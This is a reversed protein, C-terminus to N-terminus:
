GGKQGKHADLIQALRDPPQYGPFLEGDDLVLAPTGRVGIAMGINYEDLVPNKCDKNGTINGTKKANTLAAHRDAACWVREAKYFSETDPGSRPFFAYRITIGKANYGAIQSHLLKCYGCDIDTFVTIVHKPKEAPFVIMNSEGLKALAALRAQNRANETLTAGDAIRVLDGEIMYEGDASVYGFNMGTQLEYFGPVASPRISDIKFQLRKELKARLAPIDLTAGMGAPAAVTASAPADATATQTTAATAGPEYPPACAALSPLLLILLPLAKM